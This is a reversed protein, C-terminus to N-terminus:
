SRSALEREDASPCRAAEASLCVIVRTSCL